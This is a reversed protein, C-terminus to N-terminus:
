GFSRVDLFTLPDAEDIFGIEFFGAEKHDEARLSERNNDMYNNPRHRFEDKTQGNYHVGFIKCSFFYVM